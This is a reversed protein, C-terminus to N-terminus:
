PRIARLPTIELHRHNHCAGGAEDAAVQDIAQEGVAVAHCADVVHAAARALVQTGGQRVLVEHEDLAVAGLRLRQRRGDGRMARDVDDPVQGGVRVDGSADRVGADVHAVGEHGRVARDLDGLRRARLLDGEGRGRRDVAGM